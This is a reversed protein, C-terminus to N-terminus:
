QRDAPLRRECRAEVIRWGRKGCVYGIVPSALVMAYTTAIDLLVSDFLRIREWNRAWAGITAISVFASVFYLTVLLVYRKEGMQRARELKTLRRSRLTMSGARLPPTVGVSPNGQITPPIVRHGHAIKSEFGGSATSRM